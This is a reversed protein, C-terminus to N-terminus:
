LKVESRRSRLWLIFTIFATFRKDIKKRILKFQNPNILMAKIKGYKTITLPNSQALDIYDALSHQFQRMNIVLSSYKM